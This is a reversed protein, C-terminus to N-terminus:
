LLYLYTVIGIRDYNVGQMPYM